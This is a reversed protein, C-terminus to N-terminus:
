QLLRVLPFSAVIQFIEYGLFIWWALTLALGLGLAATPMLVGVKGM